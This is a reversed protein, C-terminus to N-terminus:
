PLYIWPVASFLARARWVGAKGGGSAVGADMGCSQDLEEQAAIAPVVEDPEECSRCKSNRHQVQQEEILL